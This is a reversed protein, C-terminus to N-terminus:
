AYARVVWNYQQPKGSKSPRPGVKFRQVVVKVYGGETKWEVSRARAESENQFVDEKQAWIKRKNFAAVTMNPGNKAM